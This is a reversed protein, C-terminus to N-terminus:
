QGGERNEKRRQRREITEIAKPDAKPEDPFDSDHLCPRRRLAEILSRFDEHVEQWARSTSQAAEADREMATTAKMIMSVLTEDQFRKQDAIQSRLAAITEDTTRRWGDLIIRVLQVLSWILFSAAAFAFPLSAVHSWDPPITVQALVTLGILSGAMAESTM